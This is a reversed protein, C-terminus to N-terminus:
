MSEHEFHYEGHGIKGVRHLNCIHATLEKIADVQERLLSGDIFDSTHSDAIARLELLSKNVTQKLDLASQLGELGTGWEDQEPKIIDDFVVKGGRSNQHKMLEQAGNYEKDAAKKFYDSFNPLAVDM